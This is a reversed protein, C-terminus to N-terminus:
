IIHCDFTHEAESRSNKADFNSTLLCARQKGRSRRGAVILQYDGKKFNEVESMLNRGTYMDVSCSGHIVVCNFSLQSERLNVFKNTCM